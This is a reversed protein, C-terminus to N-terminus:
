SFLTCATFLDFRDEIEIFMGFTLVASRPAALLTQAFILQITSIIGARRMFTTDTQLFFVTSVEREISRVFGAEIITTFGANSDFPRYVHSGVRFFIFSVLSVVTFAPGPQIVDLRCGATNTTSKCIRSCKQKMM